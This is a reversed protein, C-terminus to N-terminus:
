IVRSNAYSCCLSISYRPKAETGSCLNLKQWRSTLHPKASAQHRAALSLANAQLEPESKVEWSFNVRTTQRLVEGGRGRGASKCCYWLVQGARARSSFFLSTLFPSIYGFDLHLNLNLCTFNSDGSQWRQATLVLGWMSSKCFKKLLPFNRILKYDIYYADSLFRTHAM